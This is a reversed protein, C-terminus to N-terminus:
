KRELLYDYNGLDAETKFQRSLNIAVKTREPKPFTIYWKEGSAGHEKVYEKAGDDALYMFQKISLEPNFTGNRIKKLQSKQIPQVMRKYLKYDNDIFLELERVAHEDLPITILNEPKTIVQKTKVGNKALSHRESESKWGKTM